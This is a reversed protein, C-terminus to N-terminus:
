KTLKESTFHERVDKHLCLLVICAIDALAEVLYIWNSGINTLNDKLHLLVICALVGSAVYNTFKLGLVMIVALVVAIILDTLNFSGLITNLIFKGILYAGIGVAISKGKQNNTSM